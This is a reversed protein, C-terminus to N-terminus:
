ATGVPTLAVENIRKMICEDGTGACRPCHLMILDRFDISVADIEDCEGRSLVDAVVDDEYSLHSM